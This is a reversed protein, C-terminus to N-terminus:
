PNVDCPARSPPSCVPYQSKSLKRTKPDGHNGSIQVVVIQRTRSLMDRKPRDDSRLRHPVRGHVHSVPHPAKPEAFVLRRETVILDVALDEAVQRPIVQLFEADRSLTCQATTSSRVGGGQFSSRFSLVFSLRFYRRPLPSIRITLWAPRPHHSGVLSALPSTKPSTCFSSGPMLKPWTRLRRRSNAPNDGRKGGTSLAPPRFL